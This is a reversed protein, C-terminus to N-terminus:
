YRSTRTNVSAIVPHFESKGQEGMRLTWGKQATAEEDPNRMSFSTQKLPGLDRNEVTPVVTDLAM